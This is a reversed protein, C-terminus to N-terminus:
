LVIVVAFSRQMAHPAVGPAAPWSKLQVLQPSSSSNKKGPHGESEGSEAASFDRQSLRRV